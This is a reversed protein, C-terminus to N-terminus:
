PWPEARTILVRPEAGGYGYRLEATAFLGDVVLRNGRMRCKAFGSSGDAGILYV